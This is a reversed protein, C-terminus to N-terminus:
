HIVAMKTKSLNMNQQHPSKNYINIHKRATIIQVYICQSSNRSDGKYEFMGQVHRM